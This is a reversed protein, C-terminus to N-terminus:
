FGSERVFVAGVLRWIRAAYSQRKGFIVVNGRLMHTFVRTKNVPELEVRYVADKLQLIDEDPYVALEGGYISAQYPSSLEETAATDIDIIKAKIRPEDSEDPYFVAKTANLIRDIDKESVYAYMIQPSPNVLEAFYTDRGLWVGPKLAPALATVLGAFPAYVKLKEQEELLNEYENKKDALEEKSAQRFGLQEGLDYEQRLRTNIIDIDVNLAKLKYDIWPSSFVALLQGKKVELGQRILLEKLRGVGQTYLKTQQSFELVAPVSIRAHWPVFFLILFLALGSVTGIIRNNLKVLHKRDWYNKLEKGIPLFIFYFLEVVMLIIGLVKFFLFYVLLAISLFLVFRYIWTCYAYVLLLREKDKSFYYPKREDLGFLWERLKWKALAFGHQQLNEVGILDAFLYYGDFRMMPNLNILLSSLWSVAAIFFAVSRAGGDPLFNWLLTAVAAVYLEAGIGAIAIAVRQRRVTLKWADTTDTYLVPWMVLFAIGMATVSCGYSKAVYAHGLEHLVKVIIIAFIFYATSQWTFIYNFTNVFQGWQRNILYIGFIACFLFVFAATKTLLPKVIFLTRELFKDPNVLPIIFFLYQKLVRKLDIAPPAKKLLAEPEDATYRVLLDNKDLFDLVLKINDETIKLTTEVNIDEVIKKADGLGWRLLVEFELWGIRFYSQRVKDYLLWSPMGDDDPELEQLEIDQRLQPLPEATNGNV